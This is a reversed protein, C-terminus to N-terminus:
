HNLNETKLYRIRKPNRTRYASIIRASHYSHEKPEMLNIIEFTGEVMENKDLFGFGQYVGHLVLVFSQENSNRGKEFIVFNENENNLHKLAHEVRDNYSELSEEGRCVGRCSGFEYVDCKKKVSQLGTFSPCLEFKETLQNLREIALARKLFIETPMHQFPRREIKLQHIGKSNRISVILYTIHKKKQIYNYYPDLKQILDAERLLALLESGMLEFDIYYTANCLQLEKETTTNFHSLVRKKIDKAKGVYIDNRNADQFKYVGPRKPLKDFQDRNIHKSVRYNLKSKPNLLSDIVLQNEDLDLLRQFLSSTAENFELLSNTVDYSLGLVGSLYSLEYSAMNPILKKSLKITCIQPMDFTLGIHRFQTKLHYHLFSVNHGVLICNNIEKIIKESAESFSPANLLEVDTLGTSQELYSPIREEPNINSSFVCIWDGDIFKHIVISVTRFYVPKRGYNIMSIVAYNKNSM